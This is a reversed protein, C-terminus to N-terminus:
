RVAVTVPRASSLTVGAPDLAEITLLYDGPEIARLPIRAKYEISVGRGAKTKVEREHEWSVRGSSATLRSRLTFGREAAQARDDIQVFLTLVEERAFTRRTTPMSPLVRKMTEDSSVIRRSELASSALVVDSFALQTGQFATDEISVVGSGIAGNEQTVTATIRYSGPVVALRKFVSLSRDRASSRPDVVLRDAARIAGDDDVAAWALEIPQTRNVPPTELDVDIGVLISRQRGGPFAAASLSVGIGSRPMGDELAARAAASLNRPLSVAPTVSGGARFAYYGQKARVTVGPRGVAVRISHFRGDRQNAPSSYTLIYTPGRPLTARIYNGKFNNTNVIDLGGTIEAMLRVSSQQDARGPQQRAKLREIPDVIFSSSEGVLAAPSVAAPLGSPEVAHIPINALTAIRMASEFMRRTERAVEILGPKQNWLLLTGGGIFVIAKGRGPVASLRTAVDRVVRYSIINSSLVPPSLKAWAEVTRNIRAMMENRESTLPLVAPVVGGARVNIVAVRDGPHVGFEIFERAVLRVREPMGSDLILVYVNGQAADSEASATTEPTAGEGRAGAAGVTNVAFSDITQLADDEFIQFDAATLDPVPAGNAGVVSAEVEILSIGGRFTPEQSHAVTAACVLYVTAFAALPVAQRLSVRSAM